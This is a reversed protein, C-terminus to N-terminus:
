IVIRSLDGFKRRGIMDTTDALDLIPGADNTRIVEGRSAAMGVARDTLLAAVELATLRSAPEM